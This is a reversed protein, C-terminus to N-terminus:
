HADSVEGSKPNSCDVYLMQQNFLSVIVLFSKTKRKDRSVNFTIM